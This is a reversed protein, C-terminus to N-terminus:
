KMASLPTGVNKMWAGWHPDTYCLRPKVDRNNKAIKLHGRDDFTGLTM